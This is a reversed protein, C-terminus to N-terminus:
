TGTAARAAAPATEWRGGLHEALDSAARQMLDQATRHTAENVEQAPVVFPLRGKVRVVGSDYTKEFALAGREDLVVVQISLALEADPHFFFVGAGYEYRFANVKPTVIARYGECAATDSTVVAGGAFRAGFARMAAERVVVGLPLALETARGVMSAPRGSYVYAVDADAMRVLARGELKEEPRAAAPNFYDPRYAGPYYTCGALLALGWAATTARRM